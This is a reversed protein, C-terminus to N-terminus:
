GEEEECPWRRSTLQGEWTERQGAYSCACRRLEVGRCGWQEIQQSLGWGLAEVQNGGHHPRNNRWFGMATGAANRLSTGHHLAIGGPRRESSSTCYHLPSLV